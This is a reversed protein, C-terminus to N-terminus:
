IVYWLIWLRDNLQTPLLMHHTNHNMHYYIHQLNYYLLLVFEGTELSRYYKIVLRALQFNSINRKVINICANKVLKRCQFQILVLVSDACVYTNVVQWKSWQCIWKNRYVFRNHKIIICNKWMDIWLLSLGAKYQNIELQKYKLIQCELTLAYHIWDAFCTM